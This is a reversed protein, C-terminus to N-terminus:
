RVAKLSSRLFNAVTVGPISVPYQFALFLRKRAREDASMGALDEGALLIRGSELTYKPHGMITHSLTTKGCGNRGMLAHVEGAFIQLSLGKLVAKGEVSVHLDQIEFIPTKTPPM